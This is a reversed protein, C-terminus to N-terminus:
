CKLSCRLKDSTNKLTIEFNVKGKEEKFKIKSDVNVKELKNLDKLDAFEKLPTVWWTSKASDLVDLKTSLTYFNRSM